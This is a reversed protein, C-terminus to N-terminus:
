PPPPSLPSPYLWAMSPMNEPPPSPLYHCVCNALDECRRRVRGLALEVRGRPDLQDVLPAVDLLDQLRVVLLVGRVDQLGLLHREIMPDGHGFVHCLDFPDLAVDGFRVHLRQRRHPLGRDVIHRGDGVGVVAVDVPQDAVGVLVGFRDARALPVRRRPLSQDVRQEAEALHQRPVDLPHLVVFRESLDVAIRGIGERRARGAVSFGFLQLRVVTPDLVVLEATLLPDRRHVRRQLRSLVLGDSLVHLAGALVDLFGLLDHGVEERGLGQRDRGLRQLPVDRDVAALLLAYGLKLVHGVDESGLDLLAAAVVVPEQLVHGRRQGVVAKLLVGHLVAVVDALAAEVLVTLGPVCGAFVVALGDHLVGLVARLVRQIWGPPPRRVRWPHLEDLVPLDRDLGGLVFQFALPVGEDVLVVVVVAVGPYGEAAAGGHLDGIGIQPRRLLRYGM